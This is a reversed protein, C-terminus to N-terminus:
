GPEMWELILNQSSRMDGLSRHPTPELISDSCSLSAFPAKNGERVPVQSLFPQALVLPSVPGKRVCGMRLSSHTQTGGALPRGSRADCHDSWFPEARTESFARFRWVFGSISAGALKYKHGAESGCRKEFPESRDSGATEGRKGEPPSQPTLLRSNLPAKFRQGAPQRRPSDGSWKEEEAAARPGASGPLDVSVCTCTCTPQAPTCM